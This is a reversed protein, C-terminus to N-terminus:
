WLVLNNERQAATLCSTAVCLYLGVYGENRVSVPMFLNLYVLAFRYGTFALFLWSDCSLWLPVGPPDLKGVNRDGFNPALDWFVNTFSMNGEERCLSRISRPCNFLPFSLFVSISFFSQNNQSIFSHCLGDFGLRLSRVWWGSLIFFFFLM